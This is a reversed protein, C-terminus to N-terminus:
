RLSPYTTNADWMGQRFEGKISPINLIFGPHILDPNNPQPMRAKNAEYIVKWQKPDNYAWSRGAINWLCDKSSAWPRVTYQAPLPTTGAAPPPTQAAVPQQSADTVGALLALVRNAAAIAEDWSEAARFSRAEVYATQARNYETPYRTAANVSTAYDIRRRASAIADDTEKIKLQLRVFEDSLYAYRVAEESYRTSVDYDGEEFTLNALNTLRVSELFYRNNRINRPISADSAAAQALTMFPTYEVYGKQSSGYGWLYSVADRLEPISFVSRPLATEAANEAFDPEPLVMGQAFVVQSGLLLLVLSVIFLRRNM